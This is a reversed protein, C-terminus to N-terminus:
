SNNSGNLKGSYIIYAEDFDLYAKNSFIGFVSSGSGSMAAYLAGKEYLQNKIMEIEPFKKFVIEEFDNNVFGKWKEPPIETLNQPPMIKRVIRNQDLQQYAWSTEIKLSPYVIVVHYEGLDISIQNVQDGIGSVLSIKNQIFFICDSGLKGALRKLEEENLNLRFIENIMKITFAGDSSGGGLGAGVPINKLLFMKVPPINFEKQMLRFAKVCLNEEGPIQIGSTEFSFESSPIIELADRWGVPLFVSQLNHYGDERKDLITLGINIKCNPFSLM